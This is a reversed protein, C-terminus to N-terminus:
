PSRHAGSDKESFNENSVLYFAETQKVLVAEPERRLMFDRFVPAPPFKERWDERMLDLIGAVHGTPYQMAIWALKEKKKLNQEILTRLRLYSERTLELTPRNREFKWGLSNLIMVFEPADSGPDYMLVNLLGMSPQAGGRFADLMESMCSRQLRHQAHCFYVLEAGFEHQVFPMADLLLKSAFEIAALHTANKLKGAEIEESFSTAWEFILIGASLKLIARYEDESPESWDKSKGIASPSSQKSRLQSTRTQLLKEAAQGIGEEFVGQLTKIDNGSRKWKELIESALTDSQNQFQKLRGPSKSEDLKVLGTASYTFCQQCNSYLYSWYVFRALYSNRYVWNRRIPFANTDNIGMMSIVLDPDLNDFQTELVEVVFASSAGSRGINLVEVKRHIGQGDFEKQLAPELLAPWSSDSLEGVASYPATTSEGVTIVRYVERESRLEPSNGTSNSHSIPKETSFILFGVRLAAELAVLVLALSLTFVILRKAM